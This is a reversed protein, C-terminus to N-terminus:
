KSLIHLISLMKITENVKGVSRILKIKVTCLLPIALTNNTLNCLCGM